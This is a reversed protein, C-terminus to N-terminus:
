DKDLVEQITKLLDRLEDEGLQLNVELGEEDSHVDAEVVLGFNRDGCFGRVGETITISSGWYYKM